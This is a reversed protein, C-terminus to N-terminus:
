LHFIVLSVDLSEDKWIGGFKQTSIQALTPCEGEHKWLKLDNDQQLETWCVSLYKRATNGQM